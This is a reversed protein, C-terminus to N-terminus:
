GSGLAEACVWLAEEVHIAPVGEVGVSFLAIRRTRSGAGHGPALEGFLMAHICRADAVVLRGSPVGHAQEGSGLVDGDVTTRIGLGGPDVLDADLAWV